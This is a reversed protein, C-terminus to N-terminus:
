RGWKHKYAYNVVISKKRCVADAIEQFSKGDDFMKKALKVDWAPANKTKSAESKEHLDLTKKMIQEIQEQSDEIIKVSCNEIGFKNPRRIGTELYYKCYGNASVAGLYKCGQCNRIRMLEVPHVGFVIM